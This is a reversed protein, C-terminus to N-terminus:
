QNCAASLPQLSTVNLRRLRAAPILVGKASVKQGKWRDPRFFRVGLLQYARDGLPKAADAKLEAMSAAQSPSESPDGARTLSWAGDATQDLCGIADVIPLPNGPRWAYQVFPTFMEDIGRNGSALFRVESAPAPNGPNNVSNDYHAAVVLKAGAALELPEALDYSLQWHFDYKPITLLTRETGDAGVVSYNFAVARYHGHPHLQYITVPRTYASMGIIEYDAQNPRIPPFPASNGEAKEGPADTLLPQGNVIVSEGAGNARWLQAAPAHPAFWLALVSHDKQPTGIPQYHINFDLYLDPGGKLLRAFGEPYGEFSAGPTYAGFMDYAASDGPVRVAPERMIVDNPFGSQRALAALPSSDPGFRPAAVVETIAMHHVVAANSPLVQMASIWKDEAFPVKVFESVYPFDGHAPIEVEPLTVVADPPAGSPNLWVPASVSAADPCSGGKPAGADVWSVIARIEDERLRADNRFPLSARPDPPWPPMERLMVKQRITKAWPRINEYSLFSAHAAIAGPRHCKVCHQSFIPAVKDCFGPGPVSQAAFAAPLALFLPIPSIKRM